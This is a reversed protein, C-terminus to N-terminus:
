GFRRGALSALDLIILLVLHLVFRCLRPRRNVVVPYYGVFRLLLLLFREIWSAHARPIEGQPKSGLSLPPPLPLPASCDARQARSNSPTEDRILAPAAPLLFAVAGAILHPPPAACHLSALCLALLRLFCIPPFLWTTTPAISIRRSVYTNDPKVFRPLPPSTPCQSPVPRSLVSM